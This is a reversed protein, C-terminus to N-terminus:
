VRGVEGNQIYEGIKQIGPNYVSTHGVMLTLDLADATLRMDEAHSSTTAMPMEILAHKGAALARLGNRFHNTAETCVVVADVGTVSLAHEFDTTLIVGPFREGVEHLGNPNKDCAVLVRSESLESFTRIYNMGWNGCGLVAIGVQEDM